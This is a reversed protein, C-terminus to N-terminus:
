ENEEIYGFEEMEGEVYGVGHMEPANYAYQVCSPMLGHPKLRSM